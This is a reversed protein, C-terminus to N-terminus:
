SNCPINPNYGILTGVGPELFDFVPFQRQHKHCTCEPDSDEIPEIDKLTRNYLIIRWRKQIRIIIQIYKYEKFCTNCYSQFRPYMDSDNYYLGCKICYKQVSSQETDIDM